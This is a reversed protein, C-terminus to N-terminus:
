RPRLGLRRADPRRDPCQHQQASPRSHDPHAHNSEVRRMAEGVTRFPSLLELILPVDNRMACPYVALITGLNPALAIVGFFRSINSPVARRARAPSSAAM